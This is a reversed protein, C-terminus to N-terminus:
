ATALVTWYLGRPRTRVSLDRAALEAQAAPPCGGAPADFTAELTWRSREAEDPALVETALCREDTELARAASRVRDRADPRCTPM